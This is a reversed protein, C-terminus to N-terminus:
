AALRERRLAYPVASVLLIFMLVESDGFNYEFLGGALVAVLIGLTGAACWAGPRAALFAPRSERWADAMVAAVWWLWFVFCPLGREAALQLANNHLHPARPNPAEAWRYRPYTELIMGPGQGFVPKDLIMDIGAQWMYYRDRTSDDEITLRGAVATPRLLLLVAAAAGLLWLMRPARLVAVTALGLFAGLWANRTQSAVIAWAALPVVLTALTTSTTRAPWEGRSLAMAAVTALLAAVFLRIALVGMGGSAQAGAVVLLAVFLSVLFRADGPVIAPRERSFALRAAALVLAGMCLGSASMYHGLFGSPRAQLTDFGLWAHQLVILVSLALGGVLAAGLVRERDAERSLTEQGLYFLTFLLLKRAHDVSVLPAPSFAASLLTWVCFALLPGDLPTRVVRARGLVLRAGLVLLGLVLLAESAFISVFLAAAVAAM